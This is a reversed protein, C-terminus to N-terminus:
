LRCLLTGTCSDALKTRLRHVLLSSTHTNPFLIDIRALPGGAVADIVIYLRLSTCHEGQHNGSSVIQTLTGVHDWDFEEDNVLQIAGSGSPFDLLIAWELDELKSGEGPLPFPSTRDVPLPLIDVNAPLDNGAVDTHWVLSPKAYPSYRRGHVQRLIVAVRTSNVQRYDDLKSTGVARPVMLTEPGVLWAKAARLKGEDDQLTMELLSRAIAWRIQHCWVMAQHDAGTWATPIATTFVTLGNFSSDSATSLRCADSVVQTDSVGGCLSIVTAQKADLVPKSIARYIAEMGFEFTLPPFQHPTSMTFIVDILGRGGLTEAYRAAIGGM